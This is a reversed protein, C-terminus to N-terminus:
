GTIKDEVMSKQHCIIYRHPYRRTKRGRHIPIAPMQVLYIRLNTIHSCVSGDLMDTWLFLNSLSLGCTLFM